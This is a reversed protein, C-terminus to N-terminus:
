QESSILERAVEEAVDASSRQPHYGFLEAKRNESFYNIRDPAGTSDDTVEWRLGLRELRRLIDFKGAPSKTYTDLSTNIQTQGAAADIISVLEKAGIYDRTMDVSTTVFKSGSLLSRYAASIFYAAGLNLHSSLFGFVRVDVIRRGAQARHRVEAALKSLGYWDAPRLTNIPHTAPTDAQANKVLEGYAAGSSLFVTLCGSNGVLAQDISDEIQMTLKYIDRGAEPVRAPDGIGIANIVIDANALDLEHLDRHTMSAQGVYAAATEHPRRSFLDLHVNDRRAYIDTLARGIHGTAGLIAVRHM